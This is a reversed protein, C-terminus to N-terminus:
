AVIKFIANTSSNEWTVTVSGGNFTVATFGDIYCILPSTTTVTTTSKFIILADGEPSNGNNAPATFVTDAANFCGLLATGDGAVGSTITGLTPCNAMTTSVTLNGFLAANTLDSFFEHAQSLTYTTGPATINAFVARITDASLDIATTPTCQAPAIIRRGFTRYFASAM